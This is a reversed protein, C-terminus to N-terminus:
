PNEASVQRMRFAASLVVQEVLDSLAAGNDNYRQAIDYVLCDDQASLDRGLAYTLMKKSLCYPVEGSAKLAAGLEKPGHFEFGQWVGSDDIRLGHDSGRYHGVGDYHELAFGIPDMLAHCAACDPNNRHQELQQRVTGAQDVAETIMGEVGPPPLLPPQCLLNETVWKGRKTPSTRTPQSTVTLLTGQTLLGARSTGALSVLGWGNPLTDTHDAIPPTLGYHQALRTNVFASDDDIMDVAALTPDRLYRDFMLETECKMAARVGEDFDSFREPDPDIADLARAFLWQGSFNHVLSLSRPDNLMRQVEAKLVADDQLAGLAALQLLRQDPASSWLFYSMRAAMEVGDILHADTSSDVEYRFIFRPSTLVAAFTTRLASEGDDGASIQADYSNTLAAREADSVDRRWAGGAFALVADIHCPRADDDCPVLARRGLPQPGLQVTHADDKLPGQVELFDVVLNGDYAGPPLRVEARHVPGSDLEATATVLQMTDAGATVDGALARQGDIWVEVKGSGATMGARVRVAYSGQAHPLILPVRTATGAPLLYRGQEPDAGGAGVGFELERVVTVAQEGPRGLAQQVLSRASDELREFFLPSATLVSANNDFGAGVDDVPFAAVALAPDIALLDSWTRALEAKNMRHMAPAGVACSDPVNPPDVGFDTPLAVADAPLPQMLPCQLHEAPPQPLGPFFPAAILYLLADCGSLLPWMLVLSLCLRRVPTLCLKRQPHLRVPDAVHRLLRRQRIAGRTVATVPPGLWRSLM